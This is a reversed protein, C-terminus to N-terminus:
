ELQRSPLVTFETVSWRFEDDMVGERPDFFAQSIFGFVPDFAMQKRAPKRDLYRRARDFLQAPTMMLRSDGPAYPRGNVSVLSDGWVVLRFPGEMAEPCFCRVQLQYAYADPKRDEWRLRAKRLPDRATLALPLGLWLVGLMLGTRVPWLGFSLRWLVSGLGGLASERMLGDGNLRRVTMQIKELNLISVDM